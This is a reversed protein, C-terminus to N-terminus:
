VQKSAVITADMKGINDIGKNQRIKAINIEFCQM